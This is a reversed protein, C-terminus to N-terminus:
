ICTASWTHHQDITQECFPKQRQHNFRKAQWSKQHPYLSQRAAKAQKWPPTLECFRCALAATGLKPATVNCRCHVQLLHDLRNCVRSGRGNSSKPFPLRHKSGSWHRTYLKESHCHCGACVKQIGTILRLSWGESRFSPLCARQTGRAVATIRHLSGLTRPLQM